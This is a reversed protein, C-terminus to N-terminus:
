ASPEVGAERVLLDAEERVQGAALDLGPERAREAEGAHLQAGRQAIGVLRLQTRRPHQAGADGLSDGPHELGGESGDPRDLPAEEVVSAAEDLDGPV